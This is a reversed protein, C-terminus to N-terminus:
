RCVSQPRDYSDGVRWFPNKRRNSSCYIRRGDTGLDGSVAITGKGSYLHASYVNYLDDMLGMLGWGINNRAAKHAADSQAPDNYIGIDRTYDDKSYLYPLDPAAALSFSKNFHRCSVTTALMITVVSV